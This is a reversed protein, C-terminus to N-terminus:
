ISTIDRLLCILREEIVAKKLECEWVQLVKWGAQKLKEFALRDNDINKNIKTLWWETRTKPVVYYRCESHGHWFCGNVFIAAKYKPLVIDPKGPLDKVHLRYRLGNKFLFQRVLIEPKTDKSKIKSMNYSRQEKSHVDAMCVFVNFSVLQKYNLQSNSVAFAVGTLVLAHVLSRSSESNIYNMMKKGFIKLARLMPSRSICKKSLKFGHEKAKIIRYKNCLSILLSWSKLNASVTKGIKSVDSYQFPM